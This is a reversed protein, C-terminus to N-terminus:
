DCGDIIVTRLGVGLKRSDQSEMVDTPRIADPLHIEVRYIGLNNNEFSFTVKQPDEIVSDYVTEDNVLIIMRQPHYFNKVVDLEGKYMSKNDPIYLNM